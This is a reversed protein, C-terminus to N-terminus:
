ESTAEQEIKQYQNCAEALTDFIDTAPNSKGIFMGVAMILKNRIGRHLYCFGHNKCTYCSRKDDDSMSVPKGDAILQGWALLDKLPEKDDPQKSDLNLTIIDAEHWDLADGICCRNALIWLLDRATMM